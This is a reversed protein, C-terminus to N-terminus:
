DFEIATYAFKCSDEFSLHNWFVFVVFVFYKFFGLGLEGFVEVTLSFVEVDGYHYDTGFEVFFGHILEEFDFISFDRGVFLECVYQYFSVFHGM